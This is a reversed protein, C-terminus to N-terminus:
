TNIVAASSMPAYKTPRATPRRLSMAATLGPFVTSPAMPPTDAYLQSAIMPEMVAAHAPPPPPANLFRAQANSAKRQLHRAPAHVEPLAAQQDAAATVAIEQPHEAASAATDEASPSSQCGALVAAALLTLCLRRHHM